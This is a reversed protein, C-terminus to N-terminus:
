GAAGFKSSLALTSMRLSLSPCNTESMSRKLVSTPRSWSMSFCCGLFGANPSSAGKLTLEIRRSGSSDHPPGERVREFKSIILPLKASLALIPRRFLASIDSDSRAVVVKSDM